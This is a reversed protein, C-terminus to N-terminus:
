NSFILEGTVRRFFGFCDLFIFLKSNIVQHFQYAIIIPLVSIIFQINLLILAVSLLVRMVSDVSSQYLDGLLVSLFLTVILNLELDNLRKTLFPHLSAQLIFFIIFIIALINCKHSLDTKKM